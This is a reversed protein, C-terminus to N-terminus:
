CEKTRQCPREAKGLTHRSIVVWGLREKIESKEEGRM